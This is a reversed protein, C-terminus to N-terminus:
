KPVSVSSMASLDEAGVQQFLPVGRDRPSGESVPHRVDFTRCRTLSPGSDLGETLPVPSTTWPTWETPRDEISRGLPLCTWLVPPTEEGVSERSM